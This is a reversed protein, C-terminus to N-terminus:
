NRCSFLPLSFASISQPKKCSGTNTVCTGSRCEVCRWEYENGPGYRNCTCSCVSNLDCERRGHITSDCQTVPKICRSPADTNFIRTLDGSASVPKVMSFSSFVLLGVIFVFLGAFIWDAKGSKYAMKYYCM